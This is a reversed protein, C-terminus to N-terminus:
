VIRAYFDLAFSCVRDIFSIFNLGEVFENKLKPTTVETGSRVFISWFIRGHSHMCVYLCVYVCMCLCLCVSDIIQGM